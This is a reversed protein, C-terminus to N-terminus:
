LTLEIIKQLVAAQDLTALNPLEVHSAIWSLVERGTQCCTGPVGYAKAINRKRAQEYAPGPVVNVIARVYRRVGATNRAM